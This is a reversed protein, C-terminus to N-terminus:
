AEADRRCSQEDSTEQGLAGLASISEYRAIHMLSFSARSPSRRPENRSRGPTRAGALGALRDLAGQLIYAAAMQTSSPPGGLALFTM